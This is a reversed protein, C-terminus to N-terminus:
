GRRLRGRFPGGSRAEASAGGLPLEPQRRARRLRPVDLGAPHASDESGGRGRLRAARRHREARARLHGPALPQPAPRSPRHRGTERGESAQLAVRRRLAPEPGPLPAEGGAPRGPARPRVGRGRPRWAHAARALGGSPLALDRRPPSPRLSSQEAVRKDVKEKVAIGKKLVEIFTPNAMLNNSVDTLFGEGRAKLQDFLSNSM